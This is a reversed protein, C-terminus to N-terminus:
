QREQEGRYRQGKGRSRIHGKNCEGARAAPPCGPNGRRATNEGAAQSVDQACRDAKRGEDDGRLGRERRDFPHPNGVQQVQRHLQQPLTSGCSLAVVVRVEPRFPKRM